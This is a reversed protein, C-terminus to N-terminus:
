EGHTKTAVVNMEKVFDNPLGDTDKCTCWQEVIKGHHVRWIDAFYGGYIPQPGGPWPMNVKRVVIVYEGEAFLTEIPSHNADVIRPIQPGGNAAAGGPRMMRRKTAAAMFAAYAKGGSPEKPDHQIFDEAFYKSANQWSWDRKDPVNHYFDLVLQKNRERTARPVEPTIPIPTTQPYPFAQQPIVQSPATPPTSQALALGALLTSVVGLAIHKM